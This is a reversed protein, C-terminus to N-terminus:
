NTAIARIAPAAAEGFAFGARPQASAQAAFGSLLVISDKGRALGAGYAPARMDAIQAIKRGASLTWKGSRASTQRSLVQAGNGAVSGTAGSAEILAKIADTAARDNEGTAALALELTRNAALPAPRRAPNKRPVGVAALKEIKELDPAIAALTKAGADSKEAGQPPLASDRSIPLASARMSEIDAASLAAVARGDSATDNSRAFALQAGQSAKRPAAAPVPVKALAVAFDQNQAALADGKGVDGAPVPAGLVRVGPLADGVKSRDAEIRATEVGTKIDLPGAEAPDESTKVEVGGSEEDDAQDQQIGKAWRQFLTLKKADPAKALATAGQGSKRAEWSAVAQEYGPLPKGDAPVHLTKGDPFIRALETRSMRPWHRVNGTDLHVFPSGSTPYYGVGGIGMKLGLERLASLRVDPLFFDMAKGLTHQSFKAVGRGRKRLMNNTTPSRYGSVVHVYDNSGSKQYVEWVLDLLKPDMRTPENRRWDRLFHNIKALGADIYRGDKKFAVETKEGTHLYYLKLTRTEASAAAPVVVAALLLLATLFRAVARGAPRVVYDRAGTGKRDIAL